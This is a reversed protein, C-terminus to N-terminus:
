NLCALCGGGAPGTGGATGSGVGAIETGGGAIGIGGGETRSSSGTTLCSSLLPISSPPTDINLKRFNPNGSNLHSIPSSGCSKMLCTSLTTRLNGQLSALAISNTPRNSFSSAHVHNSSWTLSCNYLSAGGLHSCNLFSKSSSNRVSPSLSF